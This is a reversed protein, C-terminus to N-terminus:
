GSFSSPKKERANNRESLFCLFLLSQFHKDQKEEALKNEMKIYIEDIDM